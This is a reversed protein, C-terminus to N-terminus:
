QIKYHSLHHVPSSLPSKWAAAESFPSSSFAKMHLNKEKVSWLCKLSFYEERYTVYLAVVIDETHAPLPAANTETSSLTNPKPVEAPLTGFSLCM